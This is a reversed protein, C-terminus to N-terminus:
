LRMGREIVPLCFFIMLVRVLALLLHEREEIGAGANVVVLM